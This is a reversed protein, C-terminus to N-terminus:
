VHARGIKRNLISAPTYTVGGVTVAPHDPPASAGPVSSQALAPGAALLAIAHLMNRMTFDGSFCAYKMAYCERVPVFLGKACGGSDTCAIPEM